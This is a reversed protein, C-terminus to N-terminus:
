ANRLALDRTLRGLVWQLERAYTAAEADMLPMM